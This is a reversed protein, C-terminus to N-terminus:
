SMRYLIYDCRLFTRDEFIILRSLEAVPELRLKGGLRCIVAFILLGSQGHFRIKSATSPVRIETEEPIEIGMRKPSIYYVDTIILFYIFVDRWRPYDGTTSSVLLITM